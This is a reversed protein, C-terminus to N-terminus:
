KLIKSRVCSFLKCSEKDSCALVHLVLGAALAQVLISWSHMQIYAASVSSHGMYGVCSAHACSLTCLIKCLALILQTSESVFVRGKSSSKYAVFSYNETFTVNRSKM